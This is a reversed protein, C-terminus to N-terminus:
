IKTNIKFLLFALITVYYVIVIYYYYLISFYLDNLFDINCLM